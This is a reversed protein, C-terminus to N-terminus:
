RGTADERVFIEPALAFDYREVGKWQPLYFAFLERKKEANVAIELGPRDQGNGFTLVAPLEAEKAAHMVAHHLLVHERHGYEGNANHTIVIDPKFQQM